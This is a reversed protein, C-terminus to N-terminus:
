QPRVLLRVQSGDRNAYSIPTCIVDYRGPEVQDLNDVGEIILIDEPLLTYHVHHEELAAGPKDASLADIAFCAIDQEVMYEAAGKEPYVFNRLYEDTDEPKMGCDWILYDGASLDYKEAQEALEARSVGEGPEKDTFDCIVGETLMEDLRIEDITRHEDKSLFHTPADMHTGCHTELHLITSNYDDEELTAFDEFEPAPHLPPLTPSDETLTQSLDTWDSAQM